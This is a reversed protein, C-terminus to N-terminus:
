AWELDHRKDQESKSRFSFYPTLGWNEYPRLQDFIAESISSTVEALREKSSALDTLVVRFFVSPEGTSDIGINHSVRVVWQRPLKEVAKRVERDLQGQHVFARPVRAMVNGNDASWLDFPLIM